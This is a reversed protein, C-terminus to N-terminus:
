LKKEFYMKLIADYFRKREILYFFSLCYSGCLKSHIDQIKYNHNIIPKPLQSLLSKDPQSGFSDLCSSKNDKLIFSTWQTGGMSGNAINVFGNDYYTKSDRPQIPYNCVRYNVKM